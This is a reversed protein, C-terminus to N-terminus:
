PYDNVINSSRYCEIWVEMYWQQDTNHSNTMKQYKSLVWNTRPDHHHSGQIQGKGFREAKPTPLSAHIQEFDSKKELVCNVDHDCIPVIVSLLPTPYNYHVPVQLRLWLWDSRRGIILVRGCMQLHIQNISQHIGIM